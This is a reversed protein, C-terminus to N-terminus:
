RRLWRAYDMALYSIIVSAGARRISTLTEPMAKEYDLWGNKCAALLMACEGSVHYAAIPTNFNTSLNNIIDLYHLAPKVMLFDAGEQIDLEAEILAERSNAPDMQYTKKDGSKPASDLADRFPGYFASAYKATYSMIGTNYYGAKDLAERIIGVRGDMMDSPGLIDFGAQAQAVSMKALIPLTIDNIIKGNEVYGDHGDSSYPDMAVDSILCSEPYKEKIKRAADLYFNDEAYSYTAVKDKNEEPVAPFIMFSNVGLSLASEITKLINDLSMRSSVPLSSIPQNIGQGDVLFLPLVLHGPELHTERVLQRISESARNRRPRRQLFPSNFEM